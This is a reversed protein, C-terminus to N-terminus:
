GPSVQYQDIWDNMEVLQILLAAQNSGGPLESTIEHGSIQRILENLRRTDFLSAVPSSRDAAIRTAEDIVAQDYLPSQVHPYASKKRHLTSPPLIDGMAAKLLGKVGGACKMRWPVNWVYEVLRYDCFPIRVDLGVAM